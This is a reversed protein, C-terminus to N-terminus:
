SLPEPIESTSFSIEEQQPILEKALIHIIKQAYEIPIANSAKTGPLFKEAYLVRNFRTIAAYSPQFMAKENNTSGYIAIGIEANFKSAVKKALEIALMLCDEKKSEPASNGNASLPAVDLQRFLQHDTFATIGGQFYQAANEVSGLLMQLCGSTINEAVAINEYNYICHDKIANILQKM